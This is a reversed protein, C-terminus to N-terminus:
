FASPTVEAKKKGTCTCKKDGEEVEVVEAVV